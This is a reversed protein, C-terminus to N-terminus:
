GSQQGMWRVDRGIHVIDRTGRRTTDRCGIWCIIGMRGRLRIGTVDVTMLVTAYYTSNGAADWATLTVYYTGDELDPPVQATWYGDSGPMFVLAHNDAMGEIRTIM